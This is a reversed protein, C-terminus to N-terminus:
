KVFQREQSECRWGASFRPRRAAERHDGTLVAGVVGDCAGNSFLWNMVNIHMGYWGRLGIPSYRCGASTKTRVYVNPM